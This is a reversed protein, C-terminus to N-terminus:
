SAEKQKLLKEGAQWVNGAGLTIVCDGKRSEASVAAVAADITGVYHVHRHGFAHMREALAQATVGEIPKESAAYIDLLYVADAQNFSRAFDDM